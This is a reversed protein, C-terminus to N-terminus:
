PKVRVIGISQYFRTLQGWVLSRPRDLEANSSELRLEYASRQRVQQKLKSCCDYSCHSQCDPCDPHDFCQMKWSSTQTFTEHHTTEFHYKLEQYAFKWMKNSFSWPVTSVAQFSSVVEDVGFPTQSALVLETPEIRNECCHLRM